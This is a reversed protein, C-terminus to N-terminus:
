SQRNLKTPLYAYSDPTEWGVECLPSARSVAYDFILQAITEATPNHEMIFCPEGDGAAM